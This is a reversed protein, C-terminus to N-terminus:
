TSVLAPLDKEGIRKPFSRTCSSTAPAPRPPGAPPLPEPGRRTGAASCPPHPVLLAERGEEEKRGGVTRPGACRRAPMASAPRGGAAAPSARRRLPGVRLGRCQRAGLVTGSRAPAACLQRMGRTEREASRRGPGRAGCSVAGPVQCGSCGRSPPARRGGAARGAVAATPHGPRQAPLARLGPAACPPLPVPLTGPPCPDALELGALIHCDPWGATGDSRVLQPANGERQGGGRECKCVFLGRALAPVVCALPAVNVSQHLRPCRCSPVSPCSLLPDGGWVCRM